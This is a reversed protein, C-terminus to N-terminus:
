YTGSNHNLGRESAGSSSSKASCQAAEQQRRGRIMEAHYSSCSPLAKNSKVEAPFHLNSDRIKWREPCIDMCTRLNGSLWHTNIKPNCILKLLLHIQLHSIWSYHLNIINTMNRQIGWVSFIARQQYHSSLLPKNLSPNPSLTLCCGWFWSIPKNRMRKYYVEQHTSLCMTFTRLAHVKSVYPRSKLGLEVTVDEGMVNTRLKRM